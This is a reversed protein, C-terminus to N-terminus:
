KLSREIERMILTISAPWTFICVLIFWGPHNLEYAIILPAVFLFSIFFAMATFRVAKLYYKLWKMIKREGM